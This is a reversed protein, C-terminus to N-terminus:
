PGWRRWAVFGATALVLITGAVVLAVHVVGGDLALASAFAALSVFQVANGPKDRVARLFARYDRRSGLLGARGIRRRRRHEAARIRLATWGLTVVIVILVGIM